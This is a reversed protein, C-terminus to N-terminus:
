NKRYKSLELTSVTLLEHDVNDIVLRKTTNTLILNCIEKSPMNDLVIKFQTKYDKFGIREDLNKIKPNMVLMTKIIQFAKLEEATTYIGTSSKEGELVKKISNQLSVSNILNSLKESIKETIRKGNMKQFVLKILGDGAPYLTQTLANNFDDLFYKEEFIKLIEQTNFVQLHFNAIDELDARTFDRLDFVM